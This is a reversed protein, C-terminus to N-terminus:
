EVGSFPNVITLEGIKHGDQLDESYLVTCQAELAAAIILSDYLSYNYRKTLELTQEYLPISAFVKCFPALVTHLYAQCDDTSLPEAFKRIAVNLFEQIVQFSIAGSDDALSTQIIGKAIAQKEPAESDFSYVFVNTDIFHRDSM